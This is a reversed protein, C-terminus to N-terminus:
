KSYKIKVQYQQDYREVVYSIRDHYVGMGYHGLKEKKKEFDEKRTSFEGLAKNLTLDDQIYTNLLKKEEETLLLEEFTKLNKKVFTVEEKDVTKKRDFMKVVKLDYQNSLSVTYTMQFAVNYNDYIQIIYEKDFIYDGKDHLAKEYNEIDNIYASVNTYHSSFDALTDYETLVRTPVVDQVEPLEGEKKEVTNLGGLSSTIGEFAYSYLLPLFAFALLILIYPLFSPKRRNMNVYRRQLDFGCHPCYRDQENVEHDCRPCKRM